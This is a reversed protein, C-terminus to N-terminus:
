RRRSWNASRAMHGVWGKNYIHRLHSAINGREGGFLASLEFILMDIYQLSFRGGKRKPQFRGKKWDIRRYVHPTYRTIM